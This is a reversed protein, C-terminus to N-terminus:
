RGEGPRQKAAADMFATVARRFASRLEQEHGAVIKDLLMVSTGHAMAWLALALWTYEEPAGGLRKALRRELLGFNPRSERLPAVRGSTRSKMLEYSHEYFLRYEHPDELAKDVYVDTMDEITIGAEFIQAFRQITRRLLARILDSRDKFRRYVAPTNTHAARAVARMTLAKEGGRKWLAAAASLIREELDPDPHRPM